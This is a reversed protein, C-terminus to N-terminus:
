RPSSSSVFGTLFSKVRSISVTIDSLTLTLNLTPMFHPLSSLFNTAFCPFLFANWIPPFEDQRACRDVVPRNWSRNPFLHLFFLYLLCPSSRRLLLQLLLEVEFTHSAWSFESASTRKMRNYLQDCSSDQLRKREGIVGGESIGENGHSGLGCRLVQWTRVINFDM